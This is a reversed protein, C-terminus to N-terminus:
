LFGYNIQSYTGVAVLVNGNGQYDQYSEETIAASKVLVSNDDYIDVYTGTEDQVVIPNFGEDLLANVDILFSPQILLGTDPQTSNGLAAYLSDGDPMNTNTQM